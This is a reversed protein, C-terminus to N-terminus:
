QLRTILAKSDDADQQARGGYSDFDTLAAHAYLLADEPRDQNALMLAINYRTRGADYRDGSAEFGRIARQYHDLATTIDGAHSYANGLQNHTVALDAVADPPLLALAGHYHRAATNLHELLQEAAAAARRADYFRQLGIGGLQGVAHARRLRDNPDLLELSRQYWHQAQDLDRLEPISLYALGLNYSATSEVTADGAQRALDIAARYHDVSDARGQERLIQALEHTSAALSRIQNRASDTLTDQVPAHQSGDAALAAAIGASALNDHGRGVAVAARTLTHDQAVGALTDPAAALAQQALRRDLDVVAHQLREAQAWDRAALALQVRYGSIISWEQERQPLPDGTDPDVFVAVTDTVLRAWERSRGQYSYLTDLGQMPGMVHQWWNHTISQRRAHLLNPEEAALVALVRNDGREYSDHYYDGLRALAACYAHLVSDHGTSGPHGYAQELTPALFWALAPHLRYYGGGVATVLGADAARGALTDWTDRTVGALQPLHEPLEPDGMAALADVDAFGQFMALLALLTQEHSTFNTTYGYRLSAGLSGTRGLPGVDDLDEGARLRGVFGDIQAATTLRQRLAQSIVLTITLPNGACYRLLPRWDEVDDLRTHHKTALAAALQVSERLPMPALEIRAPLEGLWGRESHRSTLLVKSKSARLDALFDRLQQQEHPTWGSATGPPFGAVPEVNDWVWLVPIATLLQIAVDRRQQETLAQWPINSAALVPNLHDALQDLLRPLTVPQEFSSWLVTESGGTTVYWRAFEAATATKGAGALAHLLVVPQTDYARDLALLTDHRGYFGADPASPVGVAAEQQDPNRAITLSRHSSPQILTFPVTEYAVPVVWDQLPRPEFAISRAPDAALHRRARTVAVGLTEGALLHNYLDAIFAAATVVYVNYAMAVVGAVGADAVEQALSGYARIRDHVDAILEPDTDPATPADTHASRCANLVLVPVATDALLNGLTPGDIYATNDNDAPNEFALYGHRGARPPSATYVHADPPRRASAHDDADDNTTLDSYTGHGDFHVVHYPRGQRHAAHLTAALTPWTPPRLVELDLNASPRCIVLLVRLREGPQPDPRAPRRLPAHHTHVFSAATLVLHTASRSDRLLEWPLPAEGADVTIEIRTDNLRDGIRTWLHAVDHHAFVANFLEGGLAAMRSETAAAITPAPDAPYELYDELYWRLAESDRATMTFAFHATASLPVGDGDLTVDVWRTDGASPRQRIKLTLM